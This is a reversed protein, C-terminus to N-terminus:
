ASIHERRLTMGSNTRFVEEVDRTDNKSCVALLMGEERQNLMFRQLEQFPGDVAVGAPGQEGCVGRWLTNDCDLAVVKYPPFGLAHIRRVVAAGIGAFRERTYPTRSSEAAVADHD